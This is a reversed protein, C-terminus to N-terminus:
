STHGMEAYDRLNWHNRRERKTDTLWGALGDAELPSELEWFM